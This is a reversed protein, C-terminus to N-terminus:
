CGMGLKYGGSRGAFKFRRVCKESGICRLWPLLLRAADTLQVEGLVVGNCEVDFPPGIVPLAELDVGDEDANGSNDGEIGSLDGEVAAALKKAVAIEEAIATLRCLFALDADYSLM